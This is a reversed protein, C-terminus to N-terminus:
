ANCEEPEPRARVNRRFTRPVDLVSSRDAVVTRASLWKMSGSSGPPGNHVDPQMRRTICGREWGAAPAAGPGRPSAANGGGNDAMRGARYFPTLPELRRQQSAAADALGRAGTGRCIDWADAAPRRRLVCRPRSKSSPTRSSTTPAGDARLLSGHNTAAVDVSTATTADDMIHTIRCAGDDVGATACRDILTSGASCSM